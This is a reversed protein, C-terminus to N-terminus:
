PRETNAPLARNWAMDKKYTRECIKLDAFFTPPTLTDLEGANVRTRKFEWYALDVGVGKGGVGFNSNQAARGCKLM